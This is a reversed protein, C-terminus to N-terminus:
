APEAGEFEVYDVGVGEEVQLQFKLVVARTFTVHAVHDNWDFERIEFGEAHLAEFKDAFGEFSLNAGITAAILLTTGDFAEYVQWQVTGPDADVYEITMESVASPLGIEDFSGGDDYAAYPGEVTEGLLREAADVLADRIFDDTTQPATESGATVLTTALYEELEEPSAALGGVLPAIEPRKLLDALTSVWIVQDADDLEEVLDPHLGGQGNGFDASNKSVWYISGSSPKAAFELITEWNLADRLGKGSSAFPKRERLDRELLKAPTAAEPLGHLDAGVKMLREKLYQEHEEVDVLDPPPADGAALGLGSLKKISSQLDKVAQDAQRRWHRVSELFVAHPVVLSIEDKACLALIQMWNLRRLRLDDYLTTTDVVVIFESSEDAM